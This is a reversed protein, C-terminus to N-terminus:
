MATGTASTSGGTANNEPHTHTNFVTRMGAMSKTGNQDRVDNTATINSGATIAESAAVTPTNLDVGASANVEVTAGNVTLTPTNITMSASANITVDATEVLVRAQSVVHMTRDARLHVFDGWQNYVAAEGDAGLVFRYAGHESAVIVGASTRGGLPLVIIQTGAPPASTFGFHQFLEVAKLAENSLGEADVLQVQPARKISALVGRLAGRASSAARKVESRIM